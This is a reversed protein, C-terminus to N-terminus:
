IVMDMAMTTLTGLLEPELAVHNVRVTQISQLDANQIKEQLIVPPESGSQLKRIMVTQITKLGDPRAVQYLANMFKLTHIETDTMIMIPMSPVLAVPILVACAHQPGSVGAILLQPMKM